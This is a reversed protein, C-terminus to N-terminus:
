DRCDRCPGLGTFCAFIGGGTDGFAVGSRQDLPESKGFVVYSGSYSIAPRGVYSGRTDTVVQKRGTQTNYLIINSSQAGLNSAKTPFAVWTGDHTIALRDGQDIPSDHNGPQGEATFSAVQLKNNDIDFVFVDQYKLVDNAVMNPATTSYVVFRGNGSLTSAVQRSGSEDGQLREKGDHTLSVRRLVAKGREWLFIDWINNNDNAVLTNSPSCFTVRNGDFSISGKVGNGGTKTTPDVSLMDTKGNVVDRIFINYLSKGKPIGSMNVADSTFVVFNGNGSVTADYSEGNAIGGAAPVSVLEITGTKARWLFIDKRGNNDGPVLNSAKSEFVVVQGDASMTPLGCDGDAIAGGPSKSVLKTEGTNRDRWFVQRFKGDNGAFGKTWSVFAVYRGEEGGMGGVAPAATEYFNSFVRDDGSRSLLEYKYDVGIRINNIGSPAKGSGRYVVAKMNGAIKKVLVNYQENENIPKTFKVPTSTYLVGGSKPPTLTLDAGGEYGITVPVGAPASLIGTLFNGSKALPGQPTLPKATSAKNTKLENNPQNAPAAVTKNTSPNNTEKQAAPTLGTAGPATKGIFSKLLDLNLLQEMEKAFGATVANKPDYKISVTIMQPVAPSSWKKLYGPNPKTLLEAFPELKDTFDYDLYNSTSKIVIAPKNLDEAPAALQGEIREIANEYSQMTKKHNATEREIAPNHTGSVYNAVRAPDAKWEQEKYKKQQEWGALREKLRPAELEVQKQLFRKRKQLFERRTVFSWPLQGDYTILWLKTLGQNGAGLSTKVDNFQWIGPRIEVPFGERLARFGLPNDAATTDYIELFSVYNFETTFITNIDFKNLVLANGECFYREAFVTYWWYALRQSYQPPQFSGSYAADIGKPQYASQLPNHVANYFRRQIALDGAGSKVTEPLKTWKGQKALQRDLCDDDQANAFFSNVSLVLIMLKKMAQQKGTRKNLTKEMRQIAVM